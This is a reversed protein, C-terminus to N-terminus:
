GNSYQGHYSPRLRKDYGGMLRDLLLSVNASNGIYRDVGFASRRRRRREAAAPSADQHPSRLEHLQMTM